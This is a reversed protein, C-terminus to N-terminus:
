LVRECRWATGEHDFFLARRGPVFSIVADCGNETAMTAAEAATMTCPPTRGDVYLGRESGYVSALAAPFGDAGKLETCYCSEQDLAFRYLHGRAKEPEELLCHIWRSRAHPRVFAAIFARLHSESEARDASGAVVPVPAYKLPARKSQTKKAM